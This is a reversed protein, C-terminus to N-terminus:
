ELLTLKHCHGAIAKFVLLVYFDFIRLVDRHLVALGGDRTGTRVAAGLDELDALTGLCLEASEFLDARRRVEEKEREGV